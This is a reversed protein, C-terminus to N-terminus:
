SEIFRYDEIECAVSYSQPEEAPEVRVVRVKCELAGGRGNNFSQRSPVGIVCIMLSGAILPVPSFCRFGTSSLNETLTEIIRNLEGGFFCVPWHVQSRPRKRRESPPASHTERVHLGAIEAALQGVPKSLMAYSRYHMKWAM